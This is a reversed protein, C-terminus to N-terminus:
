KKIYVTGKYVKGSDLKFVYFYTGEPLEDGGMVSDTSKGNWTNDYNTMHFVQGGWRNFIFLENKKYDEKNDVNPIVFYDNIGDGNPTFVEPVEVTEESEQVNVRVRATSCANDTDCIQYTFVDQGDFGSNPTYLIFGCNNDVIAVGSTPQDIITISCIDINNEVDTDNEAVNISVQTTANTNVEDDVAIPADNIAIVTINVQAIACLDTDDCIEYTFSDNGNFDADPTYRIKNDTIELTGNTAETDIKLSSLNINNDDDSDNSLVDMTISEDENTEYSDAIAVPADDQASITITVKATACADDTDCIQYEYSDNGEFGDNPTYIIFGTGGEEEKAVGNLPQKIVTLTTLDLGNEIDSDNEVVNTRINDNIDGSDTDDQADPADNVAQVSISVSATACLETADCIQYVFSDDGNFNSNPTYRIENNIIELIGNSADTDIKLSSADLNGDDDFDNLLVDMTISEDENTEFADAVAIPEDNVETINITVQATGCAGETDCIQYTFTDQGNFNTNPTYSIIGCDGNTSALGNTPQVLISVTCIDLNDEIDTDNQAVNILIQTEEPTNVEDSVPVPADNVQRITITVTAESSAGDIDEILYTFSDEGNYDDNPTYTIDNSGANITLKGNTSANGISLSSPVIANDIDTDNALVDITIPTDEDTIETDNEVLPADNVSNITISVSAQDSYGSADEISYAFNDSGFYNENPTYLITGDNNVQISGKSPLNENSVELTSPDINNQLDTDNAIVNFLTPTDENIIYEDNVANPAENSVTIQISGINSKAGDTDEVQLTFEDSGSYAPNPNYKIEENALDITTTGHTPGSLITLTNYAVNGDEDSIIDAFPILLEVNEQTSLTSNKIIPDDNINIVNINFDQVIPPTQNVISIYVRNTQDVDSQKPTGSLLATGDGNDAFTLWAPLLLAEINHIDGDYDTTTINYTYLQDENISEIPPSTFRPHTDNEFITLNSSIETGLKFLANNTSILTIIVSEDGEILKDDLVNIPIVTRNQNAQLIVSNGPSNYDIGSQASGSINFYITVDEFYIQTSEISFEGNTSPEAAMTTASINLFAEDDDTVNITVSKDAIGTFDGDSSIDVTSTITVTESVLNAEQEATVTVTQAVNWDGNGFTLQADSLSASTALDSSLNILVNSTPQSTLVVDFTATNGETIDLTTPSITYEAKGDDTVNITVTKDAIGTFAANSTADIALTITVLESVLNADQEATITVTQAINWDGNGFTLQADSLSASTAIDSSLNVLVNTAPQSTLVVDFTATNGETIDLTTPTINYEAADDDTITVTANDPSGVILDPNDTGTLTLIVTEDGEVLVDSIIAVPITVETQGALLTASGTLATYDADPTATGTVTYSIETDTGFSNTATITFLGDTGSELAQTTAVINVSESDDDTIIVTAASPTG